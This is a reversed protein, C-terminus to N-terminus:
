NRLKISHKIVVGKFLTYNDSEYGCLIEINKGPIFLDGNSADFKQASTDGDVIVLKAAAIRNVGKDIVIAEVQMTRPIETGEIKVMPTVVTSPRTTEITRSDAM